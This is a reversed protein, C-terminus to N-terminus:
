SDNNTSTARTRTTSFHLFQENRGMSIIPKLNGVKVVDNQFEFPNEPQMTAYVEINSDILTYIKFGM